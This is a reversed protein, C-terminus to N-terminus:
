VQRDCGTKSDKKKKKRGGRNNREKAIAGPQILQTGRACHNQKEGYADEIFV